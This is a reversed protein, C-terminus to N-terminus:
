ASISYKLLSIKKNIEQIMAYNAILPNSIEFWTTLDKAESEM